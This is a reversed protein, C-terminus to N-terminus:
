HIINMPMSTLLVPKLFWLVEKFICSRQQVNKHWSQKLTQFDDFASGVHDVRHGVLCCSYQSMEDNLFFSSGNQKRMKNSYQQTQDHLWCNYNYNQFEAWGPPDVQSGVSESSFGSRTSSFIFFPFVRHSGTTQRTSGILSPWFGSQLKNVNTKKSFHCWKSKKLFFSNVRAVQYGPWFGSGPGQVPGAMLGPKFVIVIILKWTNSQSVCLNLHPLRM